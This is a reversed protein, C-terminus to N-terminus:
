KKLTLWCYSVSYRLPWWCWCVQNLHRAWWCARCTHKPSPSVDFVQLIHAKSSRLQHCRSHLISITWHLTFVSFWMETSMQELRKEERHQLRSTLTGFKDRCHIFTDDWVSDGVHRSNYLLHLGFDENECGLAPFPIDINGFLLWYSNYNLFLLISMIDLKTSLQRGLFWIVWFAKEKPRFVAVVGCSVNTGHFSMWKYGTHTHPPPPLFCLLIIWLTQHWSNVYKHIFYM